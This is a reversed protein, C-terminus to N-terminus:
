SNNVPVTLPEESHLYNSRKTCLLASLAGYIGVTYAMRFNLLTNFFALGIVIPLGRLIQLSPPITETEPM